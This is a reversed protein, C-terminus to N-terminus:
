RHTMSAPRATSAVPQSDQPEARRQPLNVARVHHEGGLDAPQKFRAAGSHGELHSVVVAMVARQARDLVAQLPQARM